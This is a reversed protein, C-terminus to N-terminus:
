SGHPGPGLHTGGNVDAGGSRRGEILLYTDGELWRVSTVEIGPTSRLHERTRRDFRAGYVAEVCPSLIRQALRRLFRRSYVIEVLRFLGGPALVRGMEALARPQLENPLVCYLFTAVYAHMSGDRVHGLDLADAREFTVRCQAPAARRRARALMAGSLDVAHLDVGAPYYALNRGTGVGAELVRGELDGVVEPRWRRYRREWPWDLLDYVHATVRYKRELAATRPDRDLDVRERV